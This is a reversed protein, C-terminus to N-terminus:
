EITINRTINHKQASIIINSANQEFIKKAFIEVVIM